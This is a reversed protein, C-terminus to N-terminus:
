QGVDLEKQRWREVLLLKEFTIEAEWQRWLHGALLNAMALRVLQPCDQVSQPLLALMIEAEDLFFIDICVYLGLVRFSWRLVLREHGLEVRQVLWDDFKEPGHQLEVGVEPWCGGLQELVGEEVIYPVGGEFLISAM